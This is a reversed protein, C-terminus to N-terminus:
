ELARVGASSPDRSECRPARPLSFTRARLRHRRLKPSLFATLGCESIAHRFLDCRSTIAAPSRPGLTDRVTALDAGRLAHTGHSHRLFHPSVPVETIGALRAARREYRQCLLQRRSACRRGCPRVALARDTLGDSKCHARRDLRHTLECRDLAERNFIPGSPSIPRVRITPSSRSERRCRHTCAESEIWVPITYVDTAWIGACRM